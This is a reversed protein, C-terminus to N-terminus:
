QLRGAGAVFIKKKVTGILKEAAIITNMTAQTANPPHGSAQLWEIAQTMVNGLRMQAEVGASRSHGAQVLFTAAAIVIGVKETETLEGVAMELAKPKQESM